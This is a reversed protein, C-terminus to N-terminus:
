HRFRYVLTKAVAREWDQTKPVWCGISITVPRPFLFFFERQARCSVPQRSAGAPRGQPPPLRYVAALTMDLNRTGHHLIRWFSGVPYCTLWYSLSPEQCFDVQRVHASPPFCTPIATTGFLSLTPPHESVAWCCVTLGM